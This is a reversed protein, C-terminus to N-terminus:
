KRPSRVLVSFIKNKVDRLRQIVQVDKLIVSIEESRIEQGEQFAFKQISELKSYIQRALNLRALREAEMWSSTEYFYEPAIGIAYYYISDIPPSKFWERSIINQSIIERDSISSSVFNSDFVLIVILDETILTDFVKFSNIANYYQNTDYSEVIDDGLFFIGAETSWFEQGGKIKLFKNRAFNECANKFAIKIASDTNFYHPAYGVAVTKDDLKGQDTFWRPYDQSYLFSNYIFLYLFWKTLINSGFRYFILIIM